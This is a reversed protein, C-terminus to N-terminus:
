PAGLVCVVFPDIDFFDVVGDHNVDNVCLTNCGPHGAAYAAPDLLALVFPDIDFFDVVGDCNADCTQFGACAGGAAGPWFGGVLTFGGGTMGSAGPGAEAQGVTGGLEFGGGASFTAGGSDITHWSLDLSQASAALAGCTVLMTATLFRLSRM